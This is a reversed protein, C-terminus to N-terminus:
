KAGGCEHLSNARTIARSTSVDIEIRGLAYGNNYYPNDSFSPGGAFRSDYIGKFFELVDPTNDNIMHCDHNALILSLRKQAEHIKGHCDECWTVLTETPYEWPARGSEYYAHHVNLTVGKGSAGCSKCTWGDREM